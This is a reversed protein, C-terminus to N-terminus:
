CEIMLIYLFVIKTFFLNFFMKKLVYSELIIAFQFWSKNCYVLSFVVLMHSLSVCMWFMVFLNKPIHSYSFIDPFWEMVTHIDLEENLGHSSLSNLKYLWITERKCLLMFRENDTLSKKPIHEIALVKLVKNNDHFRSFHRSVSYKNNRKIISRCHEGVRIRITQGVYLLNWFM